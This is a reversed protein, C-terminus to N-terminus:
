RNPFYLRWRPLVLRDDVRAFFVEVPAGIRLASADPAELWAALRVASDEELEVLGTLYPVRKEFGPLFARHVRVWTFLRGRGSVRTWPMESGGCGPCVFQPYWVLKGCASCRPIRLEEARCGEWFRALEPDNVDPLHRRELDAVNAAM